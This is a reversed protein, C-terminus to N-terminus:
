ADSILTNYLVIWDEQSLSKRPPEPENTKTRRAVVAQQARLLAVTDGYSWGQSEAAATLESPVLLSQEVSSPAFQGRMLYDLSTGLANALKLLVESSLNRKDNEVESLFTTSIGARKALEKQTLRRQERVAAIRRGPTTPLESSM